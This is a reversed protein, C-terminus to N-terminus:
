QAVINFLYETSTSDKIGIPNAQLPYKTDIIYEKGDTSIIYYSTGSVTIGVLPKSSNIIAKLQNIKANVDIANTNETRSVTVSAATGSSVNSYSCVYFIWKKECNNSSSTASTAVKTYKLTLNAASNILQQYTFVNNYYLTQGTGFTTTYNDILGGLAVGRADAITIPSTGVTAVTASAVSNKKGCSVLASLVLLGLLLNKM